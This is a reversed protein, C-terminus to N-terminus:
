FTEKMSGGCIVLKQIHSTGGSPISALADRLFRGVPYENICGYGGMLDMTRKAAKVAEETAFLKAMAVENGCPRGSDKLMMASYLMLRAAEYATRNEAIAFQAPQLKALPKGYIIREGAFKISEELCGRLIGVCIAAMGSRGVEGIARMGVKAGGGVTGLVADDELRVNDCVVDGTVSGRLGIKSEKRGSKHGQSNEDMIFATLSPRGKEDSGTRVTWVDVDAVGANTIFCKRGNLLWHGDAKEASSKQGMFDSGGGAETVSLGGIKKGAALAPIYKAKQGDTGADLIASMGLHHTMMAIGLGASYCSIEELCIARETYGLGEGGLEEPAIVGTIGMEGMVPFLEKPFKDEADWEAAKPAIEEVAFDRVAKRLLEKEENFFLM